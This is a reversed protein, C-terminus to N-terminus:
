ESTNSMEEYSWSLERCYGCVNIVGLQFINIFLPIVTSSTRQHLDEKEPEQSSLSFPEQRFCHIKIM